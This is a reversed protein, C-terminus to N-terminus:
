GCSDRVRKGLERPVDSWSMWNLPPLQHALSPSTADAVSNRLAPPRRIVKFANRISLQDRNSSDSEHVKAKAVCDLRLRVQKLPAQSCLVLAQGRVKLRDELPERFKLLQQALERRFCSLWGPYAGARVVLYKRELDDVGLNQRGTAACKGIRSLHGQQDQPVARREVEKILQEGV